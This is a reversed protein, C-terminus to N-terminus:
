SSPPSQQSEEDLWQDWKPDMRQGRLMRGQDDMDFEMDGQMLPKPRCTLCITHGKRAPKASMQMHNILRRGMM